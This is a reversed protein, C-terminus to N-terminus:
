ERSFRRRETHSDETAAAAGRGFVDARHSLRHLIVAGRLGYGRAGVRDHLGHGLRLAHEVALRFAAEPLLNLGLLKDNGYLNIRGFADREVAHELLYVAEQHVAGHVGDVDVAARECPHTHVGDHQGAREFRAAHLRNWVQGGAVEVDNAQLGHQEASPRHAPHAVDQRDS